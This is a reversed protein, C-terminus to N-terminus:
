SRLECHQKVREVYALALGSKGHAQLTIVGGRSHRGKEIGGYHHGARGRAIDAYDSPRCLIQLASTPMEHGGGLAPEPWRISTATSWTRPRPHDRERDHDSAQQRLPCRGLGAPPDAAGRHVPRRRPGQRAARIWMKRSDLTAALKGTKPHTREALLLALVEADRLQRKTPKANVWEYSTAQSIKIGHETLM